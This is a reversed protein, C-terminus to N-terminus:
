PRVVIVQAVNASRGGAAAVLGSITGPDSAGVAVELTAKYRGTTSAVEAVEDMGAPATITTARAAGFIGLVLSAQRDATADPGAIPGDKASMRGAADGLPEGSAGRVALLIGASAGSRSFEWRHTAPEDAGVVRMYTALSVVTGNADLRIRHWGGPATITPRGRVEIAAVLLDGPTAGSPTALQISTGNPEQATSADVVRAGAASPGLITGRAPTPAPTAPAPTPEPTPTPGPTPTGPAPTAATTPAPTAAPPVPTGTTAPLITPRPTAAPTSRPTPTPVPVTGSAPSGYLWDTFGFVRGMAAPRTPLSWGYRENAWWTVHYGVSSLDLAGNRRAWDFAPRLRSWAEPHGARALLEAQLAVGQLIELTYSLGSGDATPPDAGRTVDKVFAGHRVPDSPCGSNAPTFAVGPCAWADSSLDQFGAYASRDGTLGRFVAWSRAVGADDGLYRNAAILSACAFTGWNHPSDECTGKLTRYRGHGGLDRTRIASLWSRFTADEPGALGILDAALVYAGLQRGLALISNDAELRETGMAGLIALRAKSRYADSDLRNAVLAVALTKVDHKNDQDSLNPIGLSGDAVAKLSTWASGSTPLVAVEQPSAILSGGISAKAGVFPLLLAPIFLILPVTAILDRVRHLRRPAPVHERPRPSGSEADPSSSRVSYPLSKYRL